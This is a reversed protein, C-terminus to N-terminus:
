LRSAEEDLASKVKKVEAEIDVSQSGKHKFEDHEENFM